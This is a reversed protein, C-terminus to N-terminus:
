KKNWSTCWGGAVVLKQPFITCAGVDKGDKKGVAKYLGCNGCKQDAFKVGQRDVKLDAKTVKDHTEAYNVGRAAGDNPNVLPWSLENAAGGAATGGGGRRREAQAVSAFLGALAPIAALAIGGGGLTKLFHRRSSSQQSM